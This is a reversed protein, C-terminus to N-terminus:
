GAIVMFDRLRLGPSHFDLGFFDHGTDFGIFLLFSPHLYGTQGNIHIVNGRNALGSLDILGIRHNGGAQGFQGSGFSDDDVQTFVSPM